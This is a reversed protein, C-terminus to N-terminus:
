IQLAVKEIRAPDSEGLGYAAATALHSATEGIAPIAARKRMREIEELMLADVAVPDTSLYLSAHHWCYQPHFAPGGLYQAVLGDAITLCWKNKIAPHACIEAAAPDFYAPRGAFRRTNDVAGTAMTYLAGAIGADRSDTMMPLCILKTVRQTVIRSFYSRTGLETKGFEFDDWALRGALNYDYFVEPDYGENPVTALRLPQNPSDAPAFRGRKMAEANKDWLIINRAPVGSRQLSDTIANALSHRTSFAAGGFTSLKLGVVDTPAVLQRWAQEMMEAGTLALLGRNFSRAVEAADADYNQIAKPNTVVVVRSKSPAPQEAFVQPSLRSGLAVTAAGLGLQALFKRRSIREGNTM